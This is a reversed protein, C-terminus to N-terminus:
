PLGIKNFSQIGLPIIAQKHVPSTIMWEMVKSAINMECNCEIQLNQIFWNLKDIDILTKM